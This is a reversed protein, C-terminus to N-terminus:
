NKKSSMRRMIQTCLKEKMLKLRKILMKKTIKSSIAMNTKLERALRQFSRMMLNIISRTKRRKRIILNDKTNLKRNM